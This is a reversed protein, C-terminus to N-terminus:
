DISCMIETIIKMKQDQDRMVKPMHITPGMTKGKVELQNSKGILMRFQTM